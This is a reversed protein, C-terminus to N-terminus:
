APRSPRACPIGALTPLIWNTGTPLTSCRAAPNRWAFVEHRTLVRGSGLGILLMSAGFLLIIAISFRTLRWTMPRIGTNLLPFSRLSASAASFFYLIAIRSQEANEEDRREIEANM